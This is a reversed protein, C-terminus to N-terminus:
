ARCAASPVGRASVSLRDAAIPCAIPSSNAILRCYVLVDKFSLAGAQEAPAKTKGKKRLDATRLWPLARVPGEAQLARYLGACRGGRRSALTIGLGALTRGDKVAAESVVNDKQLMRVQDVTIPRLSNPLPWTLLAQLKAVWFPMYLFGRKRGSWEQVDQLIKRFTM